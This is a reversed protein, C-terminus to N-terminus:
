RNIDQNISFRAIYSAHLRTSDLVPFKIDKQSIILSLETCGLLLCNAGQAQLRNWINILLIKSEDKITGFLLENEIINHIMDIEKKEPILVEKIKKSHQKLYDFYSEDELTFKTSFLAVRDYCKKDIEICIPELIHIFPKIFLPKIKSIIRHCTNSCIIGFDIEAKELNQYASLLIEAVRNWNNSVAEQYVEKENVSYIIINGTERPGLIQSIEKVILDYYLLTSKYGVGGVLGIKKM